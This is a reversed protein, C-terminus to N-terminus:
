RPHPDATLAFAVTRVADLLAVADVLEKWAVWCEGDKCVARAAVEVRRLAELETM